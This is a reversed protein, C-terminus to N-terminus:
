GKTITEDLNLLLNSIATWAAWEAEDIKEPRPSEGVSTFAKAAEKNQGFNSLQENYIRELLALEQKSPQRSLTLRFAYTLRARTDGGGQQMVRHAFARAAEVYAPDNMLVLAQLPTTTRPRTVTCIERNPADFTVLSPYTLSRKIYVYIGRRYLDAGKSQLYSQSSFDGQFSVAEWLGPPQYPRVSEGGIRRDLLGSIALANDRIVEADLRYRPGRTLLRNYADRELKQPTVKTDQRYAASTVMLKVMHKMDWDKAMFETALWDLLEPHSPWEGQSGFDNATKVLGTGYFMQWFRNVTVRATLPHNTAVLWNALQLRNTPMQEPAGSYLAKPIGATVKEGKQQFNGRVLIFTDRPKELEQMVMTSPIAEELKTLEERKAVLSKELEQIEPIHSSRFFKTLEAKQKPKRADPKQFLVPQLNAPVEGLETLTDSTSLALRFRGIVHQAFKSEFKLRVKCNAGGTFGFPHKAIFIAHRNTKFEQEYGEIAWGTDAKDDIALGVDFDKQTHDAIAAVFPVAYKTVPEPDARFFFGHGGERNNIKLLLENEGPSLQVVIQDQDAKAARAVDNAFVRQNNLWVQIGDNSGLFLRLPRAKKVTVKRYLYTTAADGGELNHVEGNKFEPKQTWKLTGDAYTRTLEIKRENIYARSFAAQIRSSNFPGIHHWVGFVPQEAESEGSAAGEVELEVGTLVFNGNTYRSTGNGPLSPDALAELRIGTIEDASTNFDITFVDKDPNTGGALVSKDELKTLTAGGSSSINSVDVTQWNDFVNQTLRTEWEAQLSDFEPSPGEVLNKLNKDKATIESKLDDQRKKQEASPVKMSPVPNVKQGDLGKEPVNHFLAYFQYFEKQTYPDYKHDHCEACGMTAGLWVNATTSVRDVIYKTLYEDPDAGGEFNVMNNRNFGSAVKQEITANPLMDGALQEITFHDFPMNKNFANIVWERWLWMDRHNDIHYGNTDAYRAIDLWVQAMREGFAPSALLRDVLKEYADASKDALFADIEEITPPLGTLDLTVRRILKEKDAAETPKLGEKELRALIFSDIANRVWKRNKVKPVDPREPNLYSWHGRWEAGQQIWRTLLDIEAKSLQKSNAPPMKDDADTTIIRKILESHAPQGPVIPVHGSELKSVANERRDLRLGAKRNNNDPGHCAYCKDSLIPRIDRNYDISRDKAAFVPGALCCAAVVICLNKM